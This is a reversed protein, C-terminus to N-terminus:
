RSAAINLATLREVGNFSARLLALLVESNAKQAAALQEISPNSM